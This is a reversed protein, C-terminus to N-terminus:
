PIRWKIGDNDFRPYFPLDDIDYATIHMPLAPNWGRNLGGHFVVQDNLIPKEPVTALKQQPEVVSEVSAQVVSPLMVVAMGPHPEAAAHVLSPLILAGCLALKFLNKM